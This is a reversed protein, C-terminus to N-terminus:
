LGLFWRDCGEDHGVREQEFIGERDGRDVGLLIVADGTKSAVRVIGGESEGQVHVSLQVWARDALRQGESQGRSERKVALLVGAGAPPLDAHTVLGQRIVVIINTVALHVAKLLTGSLIGHSDKHGKSTQQEVQLTGVLLKSRQSDIVHVQQKLFLSTM